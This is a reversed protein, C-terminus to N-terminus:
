VVERGYRDAACLSVARSPFPSGTGRATESSCRRCGGFHSSSNCLIRHRARLPKNVVNPPSPSTVRHRPVAPAADRELSASPSPAGEVRSKVGGTEPDCTECRRDCDSSLNENLAVVSSSHGSADVPLSRMQTADVAFHSQSDSLSRHLRTSSRRFAPQGYTRSRILGNRRQM